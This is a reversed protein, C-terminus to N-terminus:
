LTAKRCKSLASGLVIAPFQAASLFPAFGDPKAIGFGLMNMDIIETILTDNKRLM